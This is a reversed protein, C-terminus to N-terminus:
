AMGKTRSRRTKKVPEPKPPLPDELEAIYFWDVHTTPDGANFSPEGTEDDYKGPQHTVRYRYDGDLMHLVLADACVFTHTNAWPNDRPGAPAFVPWAGVLELFPHEEKLAYKMPVIIEEPADAPSHDDPNAFM